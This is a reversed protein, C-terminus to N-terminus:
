NAHFGLVPSSRTGGDRLFFRYAGEGHYPFHRRWRVTKTYIGDGNPDRVKFQRCDRDGHPSVVCIGFTGYDHFSVLRFKRAGDAVFTEFCTDGTESCYTRPRHDANAPLAIVAAMVMAAVAVGFTRVGRHTTRASHV